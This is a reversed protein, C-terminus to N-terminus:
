LRVYYIRFEASCIIEPPFREFGQSAFWFHRPLKGDDGAAARPSGFAEDDDRKLKDLDLVGGTEQQETSKWVSRQLNCSLVRALM